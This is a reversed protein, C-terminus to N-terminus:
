YARGWYVLTKAEKGCCACTESIREQDNFPMCRSSASAVEKIKNECEVDGCWM